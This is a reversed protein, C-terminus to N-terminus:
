PGEVAGSKGDAAHERDAIGKAILYAGEQDVAFIYGPLIYAHM